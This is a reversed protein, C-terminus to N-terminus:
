GLFVEVRTASNPDNFEMNLPEDIMRGLEFAMLLDAVAQEDLNPIFPGFARIV